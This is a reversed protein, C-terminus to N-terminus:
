YVFPGPDARASGVQLNTGDFDIWGGQWEGYATDPRPPPSALGVLCALAGATHQSDTMCWVKGAQTAFAIDAGPPTSAGDRTAAHYRGPDAPHGAEIWAIVDSMAAGAAPANAVAQPKSAPSTTATHEEPHGGVPHSCGAVLLSAALLATIRM